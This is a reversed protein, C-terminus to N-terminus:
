RSGSRKRLLKGLEIIQSLTLREIESPPWGSALALGM